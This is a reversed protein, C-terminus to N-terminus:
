ANRTGGGQWRACVSARYSRGVPLATGDRLVVEVDGLPQQRVARVRTQNIITRRHIRAFEEPDLRREVSQLTERLLHTDGAVHLEVYNDAASIWDIDAVAV